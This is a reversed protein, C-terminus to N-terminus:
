NSQEGTTPVPDKGDFYGPEPAEYGTRIRILQRHAAVPLKTSFQWFDAETMPGDAALVGRLEERTPADLDLSALVGRFDADTVRLQRAYSAKADRMIEMLRWPRRIIGPMAVNPDNLNEDDRVRRLLEIRADFIHAGDYENAIRALEVVNDWTLAKRVRPDNHFTSPAPLRENLWAGFMLSSRTWDEHLVADALTGQEIPGFSAARILFEYLRLVEAHFVRDRDAIVADLRDEEDESVQGNTRMLEYAEIHASRNLRVALGNPGRRLISPGDGAQVRLAELQADTYAYEVPGDVGPAPAFDMPIQTVRRPGTAPRNNNNNNGAPAPPRQADAQEAHRERLEAFEPSPFKVVRETREIVFDELQEHTMSALAPWFGQDRAIGAASPLFEAVAEVGGLRQELLPGVTAIIDRMWFRFLIVSDRLMLDAPPEDGAAALLAAREEDARALNYPRMVDNIDAVLARSLRQRVGPDNSFTGRMTFRGVVEYFRNAHDDFAAMDGRARASIANVVKDVFPISAELVRADREAFMEDLQRRDAESLELVAAAKRAPDGAIWVVKGNDDFELISPLTRAQSPPLAIGPEAKVPEVKGPEGQPTNPNNNSQAWASPLGPVLALGLTMGAVSHLRGLRTMGKRIKMM